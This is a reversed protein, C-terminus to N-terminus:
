ILLRLLDHETIIGKLERDTVVPIGGCGRKVMLAAAEVVDTEPTITLVDRTMIEDVGETMAEDLQGSPAHKFIEGSGFYRMLDVTTIIGVLMGDRTIPLRRFNKSIMLKAAEKLQLDPEATVIHRSMLYSVPAGIKVPM